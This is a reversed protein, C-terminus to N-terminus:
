KEVGVKDKLILSGGLYNGLIMFSILGGKLILKIIGDQELQPYRKFAIFALVIYIIVVTGNISGHLLAKKVISSKENIVNLLDFTGTIIAGSGLAAGGIMAYFSAQVFSSGGTFYGIVSCTFDMPFLAAPFHILMVHIPHGFIKM